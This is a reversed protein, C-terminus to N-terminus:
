ALQSQMLNDVSPCVSPQGFCMISRLATDLPATITTAASSLASVAKDSATAVKPNLDFTVTGDPGPVSVTPVVVANKFARRATSRHRVTVPGHHVLAAGPVDVQQDVEVTVEPTLLAPAMRRVDLSVGGFADLRD